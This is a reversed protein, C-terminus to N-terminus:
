NEKQFELLFEFLIWDEMWIVKQMLVVNELGLLTGLQMLSELEFVLLM